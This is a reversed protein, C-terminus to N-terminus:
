KSLDLRLKAMEALISPTDIGQPCHARCEGCGICATANVSLKDYNQKFTFASHKEMYKNYIELIGPIDIGAPCPMCYACGTCPVRKISMIAKTAKAAAEEEDDNLPTYESFIAINDKVQAMTSMGSLVLPVNKLGMLWRFAWMASTLSSNVESFIDTVCKPPHSLFGGRQPEMVIIPINKESVMNYIAEGDQEVWDLYNLELQVFDWNALTLMHEMLARDGHFSFGLHKIRGAEKEKILYPIGESEDLGKSNEEDVSHVLYFDFYGAGTRSLQTEFMERSDKECHCNWFALKDALFFSERPYKSLAEGVANESEGGHYMWATDFYNVGGKIAEDVMEGFAVRDIKGEDTKPLRMAGFGLASVKEGCLTNYIM